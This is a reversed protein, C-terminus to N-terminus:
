NQLTNTVEKRWHDGPKLVLIDAFVIYGAAELKPALWLVFEDNEPTAKSLFVTKRQTKKNIDM